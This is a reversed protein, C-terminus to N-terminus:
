RILWGRVRGDGSAGRGCKHHIFDSMSCNVHIICPSVLLGVVVVAVPTPAPLLHAHHGGDAGGQPAAQRLRERAADRAAGHDEDHQGEFADHGELASPVLVLLQAQDLHHRPQVLEAADAAEELARNREDERDEGLLEEEEEPRAGGRGTCLSGVRIAGGGM